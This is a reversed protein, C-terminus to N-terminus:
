VRVALALALALLVVALALRVRDVRALRRHLAVRDPASASRVLAEHLPVALLATVALVALLVGVAAVALVGGVVVLAGAATVVLAGYVPAVAVAMRRTHVQHATRAADGTGGSGGPGGSADALAPYVVLRVVFELGLHAGAAAVLLVPWVDVM